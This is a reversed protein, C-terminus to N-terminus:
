PVKEIIERARQKSPVQSKLLKVDDLTAGFFKQLKSLKREVILRQQESLPSM